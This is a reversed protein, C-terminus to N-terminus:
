INGPRWPQRELTVLKGQALLVMLQRAEERTQAALHRPRLELDEVNEFVILGSVYAVVTWGDPRRVSV